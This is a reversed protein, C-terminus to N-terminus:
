ANAVKEKKPPTVKEEELRITLFRLVREDLRLNREIDLVVGPNAKFNYYLYKGKKNHSIEYALKKVGWDDFKVVEGSEKSISAEVRSKIVKVADEAIDPVTILITEYNNLM